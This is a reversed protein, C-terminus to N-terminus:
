RAAVVLLVTAEDTRVYSSAAPRVSRLSAIRRLDISPIRQADHM